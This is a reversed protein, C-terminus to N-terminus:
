KLCFGNLESPIFLAGLIFHILKVYKLYLSFFDMAITHHEIM